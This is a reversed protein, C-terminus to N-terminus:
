VGFLSREAQYHAFIDAASLAYDYIRMLALNGRYDGAGGWDGQRGLYTNGREAETCQRTVTIGIAQDVGNLYYNLDTAALTVVTHVWGQGRASGLGDFDDEGAASFSQWRLRNGTSSILGYQSRTPPNALNSIFADSGLSGEAWFEISLTELLSLSVAKGLDVDQNSGNFNLYWLGSPLQTWTAGTITGNNGFRSADEFVVAPPTTEGRYVRPDLVLGKYKSM